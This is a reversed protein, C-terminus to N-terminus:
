GGAICAVRCYQLCPFTLHRIKRIKIHSTELLEAALKPPLLDITATVSSLKVKSKSMLAFTVMYRSADDQVYGRFVGAKVTCVIVTWYKNGALLKETEM